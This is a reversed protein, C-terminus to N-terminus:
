GARQPFRFSVEGTSTRRTALENSFPSPTEWALTMRRCSCGPVGRRGHGMKRALWRIRDDEGDLPKSSRAFLAGKVAVPPGSFVGRREQVLPFHTICFVLRAVSYLLHQM